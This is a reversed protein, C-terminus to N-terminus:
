GLEAPEQRTLGLYRAFSERRFDKTSRAQISLWWEYL